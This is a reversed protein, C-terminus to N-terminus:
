RIGVADDPPQSESHGMMVHDDRTERELDHTDAKAFGRDHDFGAREPYFADPDAAGGDRRIPPATRDDVERRWQCPIDRGRVDEIWRELWGLQPPLDYQEPNGPDADGPEPFRGEAENARGVEM